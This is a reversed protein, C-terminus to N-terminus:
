LDSPNEIQINSLEKKAKFNTVKSNNNHKYDNAKSTM